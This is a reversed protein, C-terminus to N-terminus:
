PIALHLAHNQIRYVLQYHLTAILANSVQPAGVMQIQVKLATLLYPNYLSMNFNPFLTVFVTGANLTTEITRISAHQYALFRTDLLAIRATVPLGKKGHYSLVLRLAGFHIHTYGARIGM